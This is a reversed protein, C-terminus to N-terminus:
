AQDDVLNSAPPRAWYKRLLRGSIVATAFGLIAPAGGQVLLGILMEVAIALLFAAVPSLLIGVAISWWAWAPLSDM